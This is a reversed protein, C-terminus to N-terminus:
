KVEDGIVIKNTSNNTLIANADISTIVIKDTLKDGIRYIKSEGLPTIIVCLEDHESTLVGSLYYQNESEDNSSSRNIKPASTAGPAAFPDRLSEKPKSEDQNNESPNEVFGAQRYGDENTKYVLTKGNKDTYEFMKQGDILADIYAKQFKNLPKTKSIKISVESNEKKSLDTLPPLNQVKAVPAIEPLNELPPLNQVEAVPAIEPLVLAVSDEKAPIGTLFIKTIGAKNTFKFESLGKARANAYAQQFLSLKSSQVQVELPPLNENANVSTVFIKLINDLFNHTTKKFNFLKVTNEEPGPLPLKNASPPASFIISLSMILTNGKPAKKISLNTLKSASLVKNMESSFRILNLYSGSVALKVGKDKQKEIKANLDISDLQLNYQSVLSTINASLKSKTQPSNKLQDFYVKNRGITKKFKKEVNNLEVSAKNQKGQAVDFVIQNDSIDYILFILIFSVLFASISFIVLKNSFINSDKAFLTKVQQALQKLDIGQKLDIAM